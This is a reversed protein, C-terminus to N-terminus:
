ARRRVYMINDIRTGRPGPLAGPQFAERRFGAAELVRQSAVNEPATGAMLREIGVQDFAWATILRVARSAYGRGRYEPALSYGIMGQQVTPQDYYLGIEGAYTGTSADRITLAAREGALWRSDAVACIREITAREPPEPTVSRISVEPRTRLAYTNDVDAMGLPRLTVIGDTLRGDPLDPLLRATPGPPDDALRAWVVLDYRAGDPRRGAGRAVGEYRYGAGLAVRQSVGNDLATHVALRFFGAAFARDSLERTAATAAGRGRAWPATWYGLEGVGGGRDSLGTAGLLRGTGAEAVALQWPDGAHVWALADQETYPDALLPLFRRVLPDNCAILLDEVDKERWARLEVDTM